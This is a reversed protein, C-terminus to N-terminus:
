IASFPANQHRQSHSLMSNSEKLLSKMKIVLRISCIFLCLLKNPCLSVLFNPWLCVSTGCNNWLPVLLSRWNCTCSFQELFTKADLVGWPGLTSYQCIDLNWFWCSGHIFQQLSLLTRVALWCQVFLHMYIRGKSRWLTKM